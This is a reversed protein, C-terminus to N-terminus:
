PQEEEEEWEYVKVTKILTQNKQSNKGKKEAENFSPWGNGVSINGGDEKYVNIWIEKKVKKPKIRYKKDMYWAPRNDVCDVWGETPYLAQIEAGEAWAKILDCHVHKPM